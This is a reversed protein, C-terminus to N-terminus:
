NSCMASRRTPDGRDHAGDLDGLQGPGGGGQRQAVDRLGLAIV